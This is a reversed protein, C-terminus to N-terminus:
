IRAKSHTVRFTQDIENFEWFEVDEPILHYYKERYYEALSIGRKESVHHSVFMIKRYDLPALHFYYMAENWVTLKASPVKDGSTWRHSKCEVIIKQKACGLDFAHYKKARGVGLELPYDQAVKISESLLVQQALLEFARGVHANSVSGARQFNLDTEM